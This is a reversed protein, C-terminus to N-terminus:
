TAETTDESRAVGYIAVRWAGGDRPNELCSGQLLQWKRRWHVFTCLSLSTAWHTRSKAVGHVTALWVARNMSNELCYYQLPTGHGRWPSRESGPISGMDGANCATEKGDSGVPFGLRHLPTLLLFIWTKMFFFLWYNFDTLSSLHKKILSEQSLNRRVKLEHFM